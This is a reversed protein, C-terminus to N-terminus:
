FVEAESDLFDQVGRVSAIWVFPPLHGGEATDRVAWGILFELALKEGTKTLRDNKGYWGQAKARDRLQDACHRKLEAFEM